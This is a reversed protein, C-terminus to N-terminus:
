RGIGSVRCTVRSESPRVFGSDFDTRVASAQPAIPGAVVLRRSELHTGSLTTQDCTIRVERLPVAGINTVTFDIIVSPLLAERKFRYDLHVTKAYPDPPPAPAQQTCASAAAALVLTAARHATASRRPM